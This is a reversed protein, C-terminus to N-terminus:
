IATKGPNPIHYSYFIHQIDLFWFQFQYLSIKIFEQKLLKLLLDEECLMKSTLKGAM